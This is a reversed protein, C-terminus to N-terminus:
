WALDSPPNFIWAFEFPPEPLPDWRGPEVSELTQGGSYFM